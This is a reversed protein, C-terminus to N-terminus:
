IVVSGTVAYVIAVFPFLIFSLLLAVILAWWPLQSNGSYGISILLSYPFDKPIRPLLMGTYCTAMAMAFSGLLVGGYWWMPVEKYVKMM